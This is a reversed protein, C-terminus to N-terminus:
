VDFRDKVEPCQAVLSCTSFKKLHSIRQISCVFHIEGDSLEIIIFLFSVSANTILHEGEFGRSYDYHGHSFSPQPNEDGYRDYRSKKEPDTLVAFANGIATISCFYENRNQKEMSVLLLPITEM